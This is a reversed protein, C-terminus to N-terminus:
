GENDAEKYSTLNIYVHHFITLASVSHSHSQQTQKVTRTSM